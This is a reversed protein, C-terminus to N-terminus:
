RVLAFWVTTGETRVDVGWRDALHNVIMLGRGHLETDDPQRMIPTEGRSDTVQVQVEGRSLTTTVTFASRAHVVANTALESTILVARDRIDDSAHRLADAVFARAKAVSAPHEPYRASTM